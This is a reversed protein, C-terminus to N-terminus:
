TWDREELKKIKKRLENQYEYYRDLRDDFMDIKRNLDKLENFFVYTPILFVASLCVIQFIMELTKLWNM